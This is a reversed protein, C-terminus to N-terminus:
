KKKKKKGYSAFINEAIKSVLKIGEANKNKLQYFLNNLIQEKQSSNQDPFHFFESIDVKLVGAIKVLTKITPSRMGREIFGIYNDSLEAAEALQSITM